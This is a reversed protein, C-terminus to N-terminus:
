WTEGVAPITAIAQGPRAPGPAPAPARGTWPGGGRPRPRWRRDSLIPGRM